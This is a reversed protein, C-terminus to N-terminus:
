STSTENGDNNENIVIKFYGKPRWTHMVSPLNENLKILSYKAQYATAGAKVLRKSIQQGVGSSLKKYKKWRIKPVPLIEYNLIEFFRRGCIGQMDFWDTHWFEYDGYQVLVPTFNTWQKAGARCEEVRLTLIAKNPNEIADWQKIAEEVFNNDLLNDDQLWLFYDADARNASVIAKNITRWFQHKGLRTTNVNVEILIDEYNDAITKIAKKSFGPTHDDIVCITLQTLNLIDKAACYSEILQQILVQLNDLRCCSTIVTWLTM